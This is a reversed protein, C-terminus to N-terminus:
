FPIDDQFDDSMQPPQHTQQSQAEEFSSPYGTAPPKNQQQGRPEFFRIWRSWGQIDIPLTDLQMSMRGQDDQFVAGITRWRKKRNDEPGYEGVSVAADYVKRTAM